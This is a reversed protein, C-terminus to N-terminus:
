LFGAYLLSSGTRVCDFYWSFFSLSHPIQRLFSNSQDRQTILFYKKRVLYVKRSKLFENKDVDESNFVQQSWRHILFVTLLKTPGCMELPIPALHHACLMSESTARQLAIAGTALTGCGLPPATAPDTHDPSIKNIITTKFSKLCLSLFLPPIAFLFTGSAPLCPCHKHILLFYM